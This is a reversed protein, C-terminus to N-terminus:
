HSLVPGENDVAGFPHDDALKVARRADEKFLRVVIGIKEGLDNGIASRPNFELVIGLAQEVHAYVTLALEQAGDEQSGEPQHVLNVEITDAAIRLEFVDDLMGCIAVGIDEPLEIRDVPDLEFSAPYMKLRSVGQNAHPRGLGDLVARAVDDGLAAGVRLLESAAVDIRDQLGLDFMDSDIGLVNLSCKQRGIDDARLGTLYDTLGIGLYSSALPLLSDFGSDGLDLYEEGFAVVDTSDNALSQFLVTDLSRAIRDKFYVPLHARAIRGSDESGPVQKAPHEKVVPLEIERTPRSLNLMLSPM